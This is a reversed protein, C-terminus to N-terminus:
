ASRIKIIAEVVQPSAFDADYWDELRAQLDKIVAMKTGSELDDLSNYDEFPAPCSCGSDSAWYFKKGKKWVITTDFSYCPESWEVETVVELGYKEPNYYVNTEYSM